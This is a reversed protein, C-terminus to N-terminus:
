PKPYVTSRPGISEAMVSFNNHTSWRRQCRRWANKQWIALVVMHSASILSAKMDAILGILQAMLGWNSMPEGDVPRTIDVDVRICHFKRVCSGDDDKEVKVAKGIKNGLFLGISETMGRLPIGYM